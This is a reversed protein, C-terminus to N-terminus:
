MGGFGPTPTLYINWKSFNWMDEGLPSIIDNEFVLTGALKGPIPKTETERYPIIKVLPKGRKTIVLEDNNRYISDLIRLSHTKFKSIAITQM